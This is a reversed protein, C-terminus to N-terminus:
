KLTILFDGKATRSIDAKNYTKGGAKFVLKLYSPKTQSKSIAVQLQRANTIGTALHQQNEIEKIIMQKLESKKM